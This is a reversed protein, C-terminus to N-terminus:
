SPVCVARVEGGNGRGGAGNAEENRAVIGYVDGMRGKGGASGGEVGFIGVRCGIGAVGLVPVYPHGVVVNVVEEDGALVNVIQASRADWIFFNGDDSGSVVYEDRQGLFTVDKITLTNAHGLYLTSHRSPTISAYPNSQHHTQHLPSSPTPSISPTPSPTSIPPCLALLLAPILTIRLHSARSPPPPSHMLTRLSAILDSESNYLTNGSADRIPQPSANILLDTFYERLMEEEDGDVDGDGDGDGFGFGVGQEGRIVEVGGDRGGAAVGCALKFVRYGVDRTYELEEFDEDDVEGSLLVAHAYYGVARVWDRTKRRERARENREGRRRRFESNSEALTAHALFELDRREQSLLRRRIRRYAHTATALIDSALEDEAEPSSPATQLTTLKQKLATLLGAITLFQGEPFPTSPTQDRDQDEDETEAGSEVGRDSSPSPSSSPSSSGRGSERLRKSMPEDASRRRGRSSSSGSPGPDSEDRDRREDPNWAEKGKGDSGSSPEEPSQNISFMYIGDGSWSVLVNDPHADSIKCSTIHPDPWGGSGDPRPVFKRVCRTATDMATTTTSSSSSSSPSLSRGAGSEAALDRGSMRRDHLFCHLNRGGLAIYFPQSTSCSIANLEVGWKRYSILPPAGGSSLEDEDEDDIVTMGYYGRGRRRRGAPRAYFESPQRLDWQRVTGDESCTLFTHPNAETVIRKVRSTHSRYVKHRDEAYSYGKLPVIDSGAAIRRGFFFHQGVAPASAPPLPRNSRNAASNSSTAAYEIDFIRVQSDGAASLITRDSSHPMFKVSFINQTHGTNIRTNLAFDPYVTHINVQTDDSGSALLEGSRSWCLANVCGEHGSLEAVLDLREIWSRAGYFSANSGIGRAGNLERYLKRSEM